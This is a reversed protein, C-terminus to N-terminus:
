LIEVCQVIFHKIRLNGKNFGCQIIRILGTLLSPCRRQCAAQTLKRLKRETEGSLDSSSSDRDSDNDSGLSQICETTLEILENNTCNSINEAVKTSIAVFYQPFCINRLHCKDVLKCIKREHYKRLRASDDPRTHKIASLLSTNEDSLEANSKDGLSCSGGEDAYFLCLNFM